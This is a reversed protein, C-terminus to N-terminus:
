TRCTASRASRRSCANGTKRHFGALDGGRFYVLAKLHSESLQFAGHRLAGRRLWGRELSAGARIMAAVHRYDKAEVRQLMVKLKTAM